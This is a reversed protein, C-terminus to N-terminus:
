FSDDINFTMEVDADKGKPLFNKIAVFDGAADYLAMESISKGVLDGAELTCSYRCTVDDIYTHESVEKRMLENKLANQTPEPVIVEGSSGVGGDGFAIGVIKPLAEDGARAKLLKQKAKNTIVLKSM